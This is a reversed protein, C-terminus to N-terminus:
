ADNEPFMVSRQELVRRHEIVPGIVKGPHKENIRINPFDSNSPILDFVDPTKNSPDGPNILKLKRLVTQGLEAIVVLAIDGPDASVHPNIIVRDGPCFKDTMSRDNIRLCFIDTGTGSVPCIEKDLVEMHRKQDTGRFAEVVGAQVDMAEEWSLVPVWIMEPPLVYPGWIGRVDISTQETSGTLFEYTVNLVQAIRYLYRSHSVLGSEIKNITQQSTKVRRALETQSIGLADRAEKVRDGASM